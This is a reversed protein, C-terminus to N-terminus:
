LASALGALGEGNGRQGHPGTGAPTKPDALAASATPLSPALALARRGQAAAAAAFSFAVTPAADQEEMARCGALLVTFADWAAGLLAALTEAAELRAQAWAVNM